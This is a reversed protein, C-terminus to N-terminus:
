GPTLGLQRLMGAIDEVHWSDTIKGNAIRHMDMYAFTARKGTAPMGMMKGDNTGIVMGNVVVHDGEAVENEITIQLDPFATRFMVVADLLGRKGSQQGLIANHDVVNDAVLEDLATTDAAAFAAIFRRAIQKNQESMPNSWEVLEM